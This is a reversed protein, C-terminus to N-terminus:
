HFLLTMRTYNLKNRVHFVKYNRELMEYCNDDSLHTTTNHSCKLSQNGYCDGYIDIDIHKKLLEVYAERRSHTFCHSVFWALMKTKQNSKISSPKKSENDVPEVQGYSYLIDSDRRYSMTWNFLGNFKEIHHEGFLVPPEPSLFVYRQEPRRHPDIPFDEFKIPPMNFLVADAQSIVSTDRTLICESFPCTTPLLSKQDLAQLDIHDRTDWILIIKNEVDRRQRDIQISTHNSAAQYFSVVGYLAVILVVLPLQKIVRRCYFSSLSLM